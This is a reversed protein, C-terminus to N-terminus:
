TAKLLTWIKELTVGTSARWDLRDRNWYFGLSAQKCTGSTIVQTYHGCMKGSQCQNTSYQYYIQEQVWMSVADKPTWAKGSGWFLNEGYPGSSHKLPICKSKQSNAYNRAYTVLNTDWLLAPIGLKSRADNHPTLFAQPTNADPSLAATAFQVTTALIVVLTLVAFGM